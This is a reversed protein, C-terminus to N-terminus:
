AGIAITGGHKEVIARSLFLGIGIGERKTTFFPEFVREAVGPEIGVGTDTFSAILKGDDQEFAVKLVGGDPMAQTANAVVNIFCTRIKEGDVHLVAPVSTGEEIVEIAQSKLKSESLALVDHVLVRLDTPAPHIEIPKGYHLFNQILGSMRHIEAKIMAIQRLFTERGNSLQSGYRTRLQDVALSIFNLPNKIEHALGGALQGLATFRQLRNLELERERAHRLQSVMENFSSTLLGIEDRRSSAPIPEELGRDAIAQAAAAVAHIPRVYREALFYSFIIGLAFIGFALTVLRIQTNHVLATFDGFEAIVQIYGIIHDEVVVPIISSAATSQEGNSDLSDSHESGAGHGIRETIVFQKSRPKLSAGILHPDSSYFIKDESSAISVEIGKNRLNRVYNELRDRDTKGVATLEQVSIQMLGALDNLNEQTATVIAHQTGLSVIVVAGLTLALLVVMFLVLKAKLNLAPLRSEM